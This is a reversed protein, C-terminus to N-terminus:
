ILKKSKLFDRAVNRPKEGSEVSNILKTHIDDNISSGLKNILRPLAPFNNLIENRLITATYSPSGEGSGKLFGFPKLWILGKEKEYTAKVIEYAKQVDDEVPKNLVRMARATNEISIDVEKVKVAEYLEQMNKYLTVNVATGTRETILTSIMEALVQGESTNIVGITLTKGVCAYVKPSFFVLAMIILIAKKM